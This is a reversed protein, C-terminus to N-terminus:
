DVGRIEAKAVFGRMTDAYKELLARSPATFGEFPVTDRDTFCQLYYSKAGRILEGIKPFDAEEHLENVVTTRFEYDPAKAMILAISERLVDMDVSEVGCTAAYKRPSNKIDMAVYDILGEDLMAGLLAPHCGNTDLKIKYGM